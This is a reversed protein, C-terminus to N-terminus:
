PRQRLNHNFYIYSAQSLLSHESLNVERVEGSSLAVEEEPVVEAASLVAGEPFVLVAVVVEEV